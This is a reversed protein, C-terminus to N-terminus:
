GKGIICQLHCQIYKFDIKNDFLLSLLKTNMTLPFKPEPTNCRSNLSVFALINKYTDPSM